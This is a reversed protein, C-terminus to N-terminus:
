PITYWDYEELGTCMHIVKSSQLLNYTPRASFSNAGSRSVAGRSRALEGIFIPSSLFYLMLHMCVCIGARYSTCTPLPILLPLKCGSKNLPSLTYMYIQKLLLQVSRNINNYIQKLPSPTYMYNQKFPHPPTPTLLLVFNLDFLLLKM